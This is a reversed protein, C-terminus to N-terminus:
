NTHMGKQHLPNGRLDDFARRVLMAQRVKGERALEAAFELLDHLDVETTHGQLIPKVPPKYDQYKM